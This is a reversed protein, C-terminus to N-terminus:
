DIPTTESIWLESWERVYDERLEDEDDVGDKGDAPGVPEGEAGDEGGCGLVEVVVRDRKAMVDSEVHFLGERACRGLGGGEATGGGAATAALVAGWWEVQSFDGVGRQGDVVGVRFGFFGLSASGSSLPGLGLPWTSVLDHSLDSRVRILM